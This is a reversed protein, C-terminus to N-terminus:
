LEGAERESTTTERHVRPGQATLRITEILETLGAITPTEFLRLLPLAMEFHDRARSIVQTALLSHGGLEFFNDQIGVQELGLVEQWIKALQKETPTQPAVFETELRSRELEPMPLSRYDVKGNPTRPLADLFVFTSPIMYDPLKRQLFSRIESISPSADEHTSLYAVLYRDGHADEGPVVVVDGLAPHQSLAVEVEGVEIRYGRIKVQFDKRGAFEISGDPSLRGLDGTRYIRDGVEPRFPNPLFRASTLAEDNVYGQTLYPTRIYIEGLEGIGAPQGAKNLVLVQVGDVGQGIPVQEVNSSFEPAVEYWCMIQPTETAGYANVCRAQPALQKIRDLHVPRLSDGGFVAYRLSACGAQSTDRGVSLVEALPPTLHTLTVKQENMWDGVRGSALAEEDPICLTGGIWLPTFLDRLLPDHALGSFMTVRDAATLQLAKAYWRMFHSLPRHSGQLCKPTGTSGSTFTVYAVDDPRVKVQPATKPTGGWLDEFDTEAAALAPLRVRCPVRAAWADLEDPLLGAEELHILGCPGAIQLMELLRTSPYSPDLIMFSAGAKLIGLLALVLEPSRSAYIAVVEQSKVEQGLLCHALQNSRAELDSFTWSEGPGVIAIAEGRQRAHEALQSWVPGEWQADLPQLPDPLYSRASPTVLSFAELPRDPGNVMQELIGQFQRMFETMRETTFLDANYVLSAKIENVSERFYLTIDFLSKVDGSNVRTVSLEPLPLSEGDFSHMNLLVQFIPTRSPDRPPDVEAVLKEFPVHQNEYANLVVERVRKLLDRGTVIDSLDTRLVLTNLFCGILGQLEQQDRGAIPSGVLIDHTGTLRHLLFQLAALLVMFLTTGEQRNLARLPAILDAPLQLSEHAGRFSQEAPRAYDTPLPLAPPLQALQKKWYTLQEKGTPGELLERQWHTYDVYQIPLASLANDDGACGATYATILDKIIVELSWADHIIHHIHLVLFHDDDACRLFRTRFLPGHALDFEFHKEERFTQQITRAQEERSLGSCDQLPVEVSLTPAVVQRPGDDVLAFTTRLIEHRDVLAQFSQRFVGLQIPGRVRFGYTITFAARNTHIQDLIWFREQAFSLPLRGSRTVPQIRFEEVSEEGRRAMALTASVGAITPSDFFARLPIDVAFTTKLRSVIKAALLSHGGLDFFNDLIGIQGLGLSDRWIEAVADEYPSRPAVFDTEVQSQSTDPIPLARRNVKGNPTLPLADMVVFHAPVMYEPLTQKLCQRLDGPSLSEAAPVVYAVLRKAGPQDERVVAVAEKIGPLQGLTAEIEGLEIRYGRIKVQHDIRGLYQITGDPLYRAVDGTKYLRAGPEQAFPNPIFKEATLDPRGYYGRALGKGGLYLDGLVGIPVPELYRDLLYAQTNAIPRGIIELGDGERIARTSYTTDESPGYLDNVTEVTGAKQIEKVLQPRLPEGALNVTRVSEPLPNRRLLEAIGSPVTNILTVDEVNPLDPFDLITQALIVTGGWSLPVFLEYVSLDFCISTSALVGQLEEARFTEKAWHLLAVASRHEIAVGKPKGTSGSTYILYALNRSSLPSEPTIVEGSPQCAPDTDVCLVRAESQPLDEVLREQTILVGVQADELIYALRMPPYNPDLPVYAGGAKLIGLIGVVMDMSREMCVGVCVEPGVGYHEQLHRALHNVRTNLEGYTLSNKGSVLAVADPSTRAQSEFFEHICADHPFPTETANWDLLLQHREEHSLLPIQSLRQAPDRAVETLGKQFHTGFREITDRYFLDTNYILAVHLEENREGVYCELDMRTTTINKAMPRITLGHFAAGERPVNQFAFLVQFLPNRSFDREPQLEAVLQEFPLNQHEYAALAMSHVRDLLERFTPDGSLDTRMVLSNVFFGVLNELEPRTRNAIPTGVAIDTQRTYRGLLAQFASLLTTALTVESQRSLAQLDQTLSKSLQFTYSAGSHTQVPPRPRDMPLRLTSVEALHTRWYRLQDELVEGTLWQRQWHAFDVYQIPIAPLTPTQRLVRANYLAALDRQIVGRSWGDTVIHHLTILLIHDQDAMRLLAARIVPGHTLDFPRLIEEEILKDAATEREAEPLDKLNYELLPVPCDDRIVQVPQDDITPFCTRLTEHRDILAQLSKQLAPIDMVGALRMILPVNYVPIEPFLHYLFWLREQAFSLRLTDTREVPLLSVAQRFRETNKVLNLLEDKNKRIEALLDETIGGKPAGVRLQDNEAWLRINHSGLRFLLDVSNM